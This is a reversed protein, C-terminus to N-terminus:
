RKTLVLSALTHDSGLRNGHYTWDMGGFTVFGSRRTERVLKQWSQVDYIRLRETHGEACDPGEADWAAFTLFLLGGPRLIKGARLLFRMPADIHDLVSLAWVAPVARTIGDESDGRYRYIAEAGPAVFPTPSYNVCLSQERTRIHHESQWVRWAHDALAQQWAAVTLCGPFDALNCTRSLALPTM